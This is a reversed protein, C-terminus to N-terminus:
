FSYKMHKTKDVSPFLHRIFQGQAHISIYMTLVAAGDPGLM